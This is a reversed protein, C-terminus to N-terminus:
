RVPVLKGKRILFRSGRWCTKNKFVSVSWVLLGLMDRAPLIWIRGIAEKDGLMAANLWGVVVRSTMTALLIHWSYPGAAAAYLLAFPIGRLLLTFFYGWPTVSRIKLDWGVQHRWWDSWGNTTLDMQAVYPILETRYGKAAARRALEYDEVFHDRLPMLGGISDLVERRIAMSAGPCVVSSGTLYAFVMSPVFDANFTLLELIEMFNDPKRARYLTCAIGVRRDRLATLLCDLYDPRLHMDSDSIVIVQGVAQRLANQLNSIKGNAGIRSEDVIVRINAQPCAAQVQEIVKIAPDKENHIAFITEYTGAYKQRCASKLNELLNKELGCVPKLISVTKPSVKPLGGHGKRAMYRFYAMSLATAWWFM